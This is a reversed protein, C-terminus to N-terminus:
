RSVSTARCSHKTTTRIWGRCPTNALWLDEDGQVFRKWRLVRLQAGKEIPYRPEYAAATRLLLPGAGAALAAASLAKLAARRPYTRM